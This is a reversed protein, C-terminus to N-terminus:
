QILGASKLYEEFTAYEEDVLTQLEEATAYGPRDLYGANKMFEQYSASDWAEKIAKAMADVAADPTDTRAFIGRWTGVYSDIKHEGTSEIDPFSSMRDESMSILPVIDGSEILGKIEDAGTINLNIHGGVMASSLEAGSSYNVIKVYNEVETIDCGLGGALTQKLSVSDAGTATLMGCSLEQPHTKAYEVFETFNTYKGEMAKKSSAIINISHVLKSVPRFEKTFDVPLIKQLDLMVISQTGLVYTYGDAPQKNTFDIGNAGGAGEVNVIEVPVGLIKELEPQLPRLTSDAGGGVGWPCVLTVKREWKWEGDAAAAGGGASSGGSGSSCGALVSAAMSAALAMSVAFKLGKKKM